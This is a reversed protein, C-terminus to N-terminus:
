LKGVEHGNSTLTLTLRVQEERELTRCSLRLRLDRPRDLYLRLTSRDGISRVYTHQGWQEDGSWGKVLFPRAEPTGFDITATESRIEALALERTLDRTLLPAGEPRQYGVLVAAALFFPVAWGRQRQILRKRSPCTM